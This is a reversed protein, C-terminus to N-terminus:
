AAGRREGLPALQLLPRWWRPNALYWDVTGPLGDELSIRAKWGIETRIRTTDLAYRRDHGPRDTVRTILREHPANAPLRTDMLQCIRRVLDINRMERGAGIAYSRGPEGSRLLHLLAAAHDDVHVWDRMQAGSGYIPIPRGAAANLITVPILKEPFQRPGYTNSGHSVVVPLGYTTGWARVLHDAAAKSAAYPSNPAYPSLESFRGRPGLAGFVEDTSVHLFRFGPPLGRRERYFRVAELLTATGAVNTEVFAGPGDISRDVHTEAALHMVADPAHHTLIRNLAAGDRIDALELHHRPLSSLTKLTEPSAAYTLADLTVVEHGDALARRVVASGIFGAGGTVLIKM